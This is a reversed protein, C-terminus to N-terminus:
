NANRVASATTIEDAIPTPHFGLHNNNTPLSTAQFGKHNGNAPLALIRFGRHNSNAPLPFTRCGKQNGSPPLYFVRFKKPNGSAPLPEITTGEVPIRGVITRGWNTHALHTAPMKYQSSHKSIQHNSGYFFMYHKLFTFVCCFVVFAFLVILMCFLFLPNPFKYRSPSILLPAMM